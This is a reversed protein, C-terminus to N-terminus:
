AIGNFVQVLEENSCHGDSDEVDRNQEHSEYKGAQQHPLEEEVM